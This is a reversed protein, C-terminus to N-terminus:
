TRYFVSAEVVSVYLKTDPDFGDAPPRPIIRLRTSGSTAGAALADFVADALDAAADYTEAYCGVLVEPKIRARSVAGSAMTALPDGGNRRWVVYPKNCGQEALAPYIREGVIAAVAAVNLVAAFDDKFSM